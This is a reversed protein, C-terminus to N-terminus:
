YYSCSTPLGWSNFRYITPIYMAVLLGSEDDPDDHFNLMNLFNMHIYIYIYIYIYILMTIMCPRSTWIILTFLIKTSRELQDIGIPTKTILIINHSIFIFFFFSSIFFQLQYNIIQFIYPKELTWCYYKSRM